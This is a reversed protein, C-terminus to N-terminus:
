YFCVAESFAVTTTQILRHEGNTNGARTKGNEIKCVVITRQKFHRFFKEQEFLYWEGSVSLGAMFSENTIPRGKNWNSYQVYTGDYWKLRGDIFCCSYLLTNM